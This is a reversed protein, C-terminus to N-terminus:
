LALYLNYWLLQKKSFFVYKKWMTLAHKTETLPDYLPQRQPYEPDARFNGYVPCTLVIVEYQM